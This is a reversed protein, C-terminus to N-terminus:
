FLGRSEGDEGKAEPSSDENAEAPSDKGKRRMRELLPLHSNAAIEYCSAHWFVLVGDTSGDSLFPIKDADDNERCFICPEEWVEKIKDMSFGLRRLQRCVHFKAPWGIPPLWFIVKNGGVRERRTEAATFDLEKLYWAAGSPGLGLANAITNTSVAETIEGQEYKDALAMLTELTKAEVYM